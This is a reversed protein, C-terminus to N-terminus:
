ESDHAATAGTPMSNSDRDLTSYLRSVRPPSFVEWYPRTRTPGPIARGGRHQSMGALRLKNVNPMRSNGMFMGGQQLSGHRSPHHGPWGQYDGTQHFHTSLLSPRHRLQPPGSQFFILGDIFGACFLNKLLLFTFRAKAASTGQNWCNNESQPRCFSPNPMKHLPFTDVAVHRELNDLEWSFRAIANQVARAQM